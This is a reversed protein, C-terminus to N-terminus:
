VKGKLSSIFWLTVRYNLRLVYRLLFYAALELGALTIIFLQNPIITSLVMFIFVNFIRIPSFLRIIKDFSM